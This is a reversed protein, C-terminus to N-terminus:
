LDEAMVSYPLQLYVLHVAHVPIFQVGARGPILQVFRACSAVYMVSFNSGFINVTEKM